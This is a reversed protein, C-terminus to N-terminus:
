KERNNSGKEKKSLKRQERRLRKLAQKLYRPNEVETGDSDVLYQELGVDIGVASVIDVPEFANSGNDVVIYAYWKGSPM